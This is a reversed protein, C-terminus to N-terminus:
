RAGAERPLVACVTWGREPSPGATLTGGLLSARESMGVLGFGESDRPSTPIGDDHVTLRVFQDEGAVDVSVATAGRAHRRANTISEQAIRYLAADLPASLDDLDGALRVDIRPGHESGDTESLRALRELDAIGRQPTLEAPEERRLGGIMVRMEALTRSAEGEIVRLAEEAAAPDTASVLRGAQARIAIASVHHAVTDHLERALEARENLKIQDLERVRSSAWYRVAAGLTAPFLLFVMGAVAEGLNTYDASIGIVGAAVIILLGITAERGSGWRLLSYPLLVVYVSIFLGISGSDALLTWLNFAILTGFVGVTVVFPHTRRWMLPFALGVALALAIPRGPVDERFTAELIATTIITLLIAWDRWVRTPPEAARPETWCLRLVNMVQSIVVRGAYVSWGERPDAWLVTRRETVQGTYSPGTERPTWWTSGSVSLFCDFWGIQEDLSHM